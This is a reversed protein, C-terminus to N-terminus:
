ERPWQTIVEDELRNLNSSNSLLNQEQINRENKVINFFFFKMSALIFFIRENENYKQGSNKMTNKHNNHITNKEPFNNPPPM